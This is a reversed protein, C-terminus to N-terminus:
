LCVFITKLKYYKNEQFIKAIKKQKKASNIIVSKNCMRLYIGIVVNRIIIKENTFESLYLQLQKKCYINIHFINKEVNEKISKLYKILLKKTKLQKM